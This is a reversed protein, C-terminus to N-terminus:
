KSSGKCQRWTGRGEDCGDNLCLDSVPGFHHGRDKSDGIETKIFYGAIVVAAFAVTCLATLGEHM